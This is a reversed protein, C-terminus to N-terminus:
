QGKELKLLHFSLEPIVFMLWEDERGAASMVLRDSCEKKGPESFHEYSKDVFCERYDALALIDTSAM